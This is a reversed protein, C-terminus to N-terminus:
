SIKIDVNYEGITDYWSIWRKKPHDFTYDYVLKEEPFDVNVIPLKKRLWIDFKERGALTTTTGVSWVESFVFLKPLMSYLVEVKEPPVKKVEIEIYEAM